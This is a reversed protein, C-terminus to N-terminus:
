STARRCSSRSAFRQSSRAVAVPSRLGIRTPWMAGSRRDSENRNYFMGPITNESGRYYGLFYFWIKDQKIPGGISYSTDYIYNTKAPTRLGATQLEESFNSAQM